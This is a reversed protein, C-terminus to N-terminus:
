SSLYDLSTGNCGEIFWKWYVAVDCTMKRATTSDNIYHFSLKGVFHTTIPYQVSPINPVVTYFFRDSHIKTVGKQKQCHMITVDNAQDFPCESSYIASMTSLFASQSLVIGGGGSFYSWGKVWLDDWIYGISLMMRHDFLELYSFLAPVNVWTDDDAFVFWKTKYILESKNEILWQSGILQRHQAADYSPKNRLQPLVTMPISEDDTDSFIFFNGQTWRLWTDALLKSRHMYVGSGMVIFLVDKTDLSTSSLFALNTMHGIRKASETKSFEKRIMRFYAFDNFYYRNSRNKAREILTDYLRLDWVSMNERLLIQNNTKLNRTLTNFPDKRIVNFEEYFYDYLKVHSVNSLSLVVTIMFVNLLFAFFLGRRTFIHHRYLWRPDFECNFKRRQLYM